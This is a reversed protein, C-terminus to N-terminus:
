IKLKARNKKSEMNRIRAVKHTLMGSWLSKGMFNRFIVFPYGEAEKSAGSLSVKEISLYGSDLILPLKSAQTIGKVTKFSLM